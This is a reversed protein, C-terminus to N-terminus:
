GAKNRFFYSHALLWLCIVLSGALCGSPEPVAAIGFSVNDTIEFHGGSYNDSYTVSAIPEDSTFGFFTSNPRVPASLTYSSGGALTVTALPASGYFSAFDAGFATIGSPLAIGLASFSGNNILYQGTNFSHDLGFGTWGPDFVFLRTDQSTFTVESFVASYGALPGSGAVAWSNVPAYGEFDITQLGTSAAAFAARDNYTVVVAARGWPAGIGGISLACAAVLLTLRQNKM